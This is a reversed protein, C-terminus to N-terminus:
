KKKFQNFDIVQASENLKDTENEETENETFDKPLETKFDMAFGAKKDYYSLVAYYPIKLRAMQSGFELDVCFFEDEVILNEFQYQLVITMDKPFQETLFDPIEVGMKKTQFTIYIESEEPDLGNKEIFQLSKRVIQLLTEEIIKKYNIM